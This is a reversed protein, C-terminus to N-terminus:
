NQGVGVELGAWLRGRGGRPRAAKRPRGRSDRSDRTIVAAVVKDYYRLQNRFAHGRAAAASLSVSGAATAAAASFPGRVEFSGRVPVSPNRPNSCHEIGLRFRKRPRPRLRPFPWPQQPRRTAMSKPAAGRGACSSSRSRGPSRSQTSSVAYHSAFSRVSSGTCVTASFRHRMYPYLNPM